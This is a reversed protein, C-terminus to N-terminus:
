QNIRDTLYILEFLSYFLRVLIDWKNSVGITLVAWVYELVADNVM